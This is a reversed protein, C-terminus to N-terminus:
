SSRSFVVIGLDDSKVTFGQDVLDLEFAQEDAATSRVEHRDLIVVDVGEAAATAGSTPDDAEHGHLSYLVRRQALVILMSPSARVSADPSISDRAALRAGDVADRSGWDWPRDYFSSPALLAYFAFSAALLTILVRRDVNVREVSPRGLRALGMPTALFIFATIAVAQPGYRTSQSVDGALYLVQLPVVPLLYRPSLFPLFLVPAFLYVILQFNERSFVNGLTAFPHSVMGWAVSLPTDGYSSYAALQTVGNHGIHPQLLFLFGFCWATGVVAAIAGRRRHGQVMLLIGLGAVALGLDARCLMAIVSCLAFRRWHESLGYYAAALLFPLALTEPHFGDLNLTQVIPDVAFCLLVILAAGGRLLALRRCVQWLPVVTMALALSQVTLLLPIAPIAGTLEALPYFAFAGQQAFVNSGTTVTTIPDHGQRILWSAQTYAALDASGHLSRAEALSMAALVVFLVAAAIWPAVRDTSESDLRGQWRLVLNDLRAYAM